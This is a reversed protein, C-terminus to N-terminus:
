RPARWVKRLSVGLATLVVFYILAAAAIVLAMGGARRWPTDVLAVFNVAQATEHLGWGLAASALLVRLAVLWWGPPPP